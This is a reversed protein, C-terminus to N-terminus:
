FSDHALITQTIDISYSFFDQFMCLRTLVRPTVHGEIVNAERTLIMSVHTFTHPPVDSLMQALFWKHALVTKQSKRSFISQIRMNLNLM